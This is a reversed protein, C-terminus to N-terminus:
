FPLLEVATRKTKEGRMDYRKTTEMSTHRMLNQVTFLDVGTEILNTAFSRRLDHPSFHSISLADRALNCVYRVSKPSINNQHIVGYRAIRVFIFGDNKNLVGLWKDFITRIFSPIPIIAEKNGKGIISLNEGDYNSLTLNCLEAVRLGAGYILAFIAANRYGIPSKLKQFYTVIERIEEHHLSRGSCLKVSKVRKIEKILMYSDTTIMDTKWAERCVGKILALYTNISNPSLGKKIYQSKLLTIKQYTLTTWDFSHLCQKGSLMLSIHNLAYTVNKVSVPSDLTQIYLEAPNYQEMVLINEKKKLKRM